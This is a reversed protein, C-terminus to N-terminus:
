KNKEKTLFSTINSKLVNIKHTPKLFKSFNKNKIFGKYGDEKIKIKLGNKIEKKYQFVIEM